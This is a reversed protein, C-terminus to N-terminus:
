LIGSTTPYQRTEVSTLREVSLDVLKLARARGLQVGFLLAACAGVPRLQAPGDTGQALAVRQEDGANIAQRARVRSRKFVNCTLMFEGMPSSTDVWPDALSKFAAGRETVTHGPVFTFPKEPPGTRAPQNSRLYKNVSRKRLQYECSIKDPSNKSKLDPSARPAKTLASPRGFKIGAERARKIGTDTRAKIM